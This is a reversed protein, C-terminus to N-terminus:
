NIIQIPLDKDYVGSKFDNDYFCRNDIFDILDEKSWFEDRDAGEDDLDIIMVDTNKHSCLVGQVLGGSLTIIIKDPEDRENLIEQYENNYFEEISVPLWGDEYRNSENAAQIYRNYEEILDALKRRSLENISM